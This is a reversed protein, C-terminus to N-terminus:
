YAQSLKLQQSNHYSPAWNGQALTEGTPGDPTCVTRREMSQLRQTYRSTSDALAKRHSLLRLPYTEYFCCTKKFNCYEAINTLCPRISTNLCAFSEIIPPYSKCLPLRKCHTPANDRLHEDGSLDRVRVQGSHLTHPFCFSNLMHSPGPILHPM